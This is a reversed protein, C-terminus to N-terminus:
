DEILFMALETGFLEDLKKARNMSDFTGEDIKSKVISVLATKGGVPLEQAIEAMKDVDLELIKSLDEKSYLSDYVKKVGDWEPLNLLEEDDIVFMPNYIHVDRSLMAARLDQYEVKTSDNNNFWEYVIGSKKGYMNMYGPILSRCSILDSDSYSKVAKKPAPTKENKATKENKEEVAGVAENVETQSINSEQVGQMENESTISKKGRAM